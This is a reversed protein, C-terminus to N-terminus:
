EETVEAVLEDGHEAVYKTLVIFGDETAQRDFGRFKVRAPYANVIKESGDEIEVVIAWGFLHLTHNIWWLLGTARFEEWSKPFVM